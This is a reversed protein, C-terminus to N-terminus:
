SRGHRVRELASRVANVSSRWLSSPVWPKLAPVLMLFMPERRVRVSAEGTLGDFYRYPEGESAFSTSPLRATVLV